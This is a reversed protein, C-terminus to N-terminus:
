RLYGTHHDCHHKTSYPYQLNHREFYVPEPLVSSSVISSIVTTVDHCQKLYFKICQSLMQYLVQYMQSPVQSLMQYVSGISPVNHCCKSVVSSVSHYCKIFCKVCQSLVEYMTVVSSVVRPVSIVCSKVSQKKLCCKICCLNLVNHCYKFCQSLVQYMTVVNSFVSSVNHCCKLFCKVCQSLVEYMTVVSSVVRPVSVVCSIVSQKKLCCKICCLNSVNHCYKFCQSLVQYMTVVNSFVSSVNHCCKM